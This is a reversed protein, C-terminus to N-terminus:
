SCGSVRVTNSVTLLTQVGARFHGTKLRVTEQAAHMHCRDSYVNEFFSIRVLNELLKM